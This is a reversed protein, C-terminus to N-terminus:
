LVDGPFQDSGLGRERKGAKGKKEYGWFLAFCPSVGMELGEALPSGALIGSHIVALNM